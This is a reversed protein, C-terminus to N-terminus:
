RPHRRGAAVHNDWELSAHRSRPDEHGAGRRGRHVGDAGGQNGIATGRGVGFASMESARPLPCIMHERCTRRIGKGVLVSFCIMGGGNKTPPAYRHAHAFWVRYVMADRGKREYWIGVAIPRKLAADIFDLGNGFRARPEQHWRATPKAHSARLFLRPADHPAVRWSAANRM